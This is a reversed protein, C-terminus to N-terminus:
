SKVVTYCALVLEPWGVSYFPQRFALMVNGVSENDEKLLIQQCYGMIARRVTEPDEEERLRALISAVRKWGVNPTVLARCLEITTSQAEAIKQVTQLRKEPTTVLVQELIQLAKRPLGLSHLTIQEYAAKPLSEGEAKVVHRLLQFMEQENLSSVPLESCRGRITPLLKQPDTTCLVFYVHQPTDELAKLLAAQADSTLKHCEDLLWVQVSGTLPVFQMQRRIDRITDVGRFDASDIERFGLKECKLRNAMIRAITTKGCGTPGHLLTAHPCNENRLMADLLTIIASNGVMQDLSTPRYKLYLSM